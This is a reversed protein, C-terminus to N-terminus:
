PKREPAPWAPGVDERRPAPPPLFELGEGATKIAALDAQAQAAAAALQARRPPLTADEPKARIQEDLKALQAALDASTASARAQARVFHVVAWRREAPLQAAFGPMRARGRTAIHFIEGEPMNLVGIGNLSPVGPFFAAVYGNAADGDRGHCAACTILYDRQGQKLVLPTALLPNVQARAAVLDGAAITYPAPGRPVTGDPPTLMAPWVVTREVLEGQEDRVLRTTTTAAQSKVAPSHAMDPVIEIKRDKKETECGSLLLLTAAVLLFKRM